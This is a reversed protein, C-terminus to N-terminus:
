LGKGGRGWITVFNLLTVNHYKSIDCFSVRKLIRKKGKVNPNRESRRKCLRPFFFSLVLSPSGKADM